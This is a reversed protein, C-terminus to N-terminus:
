ISRLFENLYTPLQKNIQSFSTRGREDVSLLWGVVEPINAWPPPNVPGCISRTQYTSKGDVLKILAIGHKAAYELAGSQFSSTAFIIGKHCGLEKIRDNLVQVVDRKIPHRHNKCEVLVKFDVGFFNFTVLVDIEYNSDGNELQVRKQVQFDKFGESAELISKVETELQEGNLPLHGNNM